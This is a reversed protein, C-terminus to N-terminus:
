GSTTYFLSMPFTCTRGAVVTPDTPDCYESSYHFESVDLENILDVSSKIWGHVEVYSLTFFSVQSEFRVNDGLVPHDCTFVAYIVNINEM